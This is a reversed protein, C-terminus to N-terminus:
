NLNIHQPISESADEFTATRDRGAHKAAYLATDAARILEEYTTIDRSLTAAGISVTVGRGGPGRLAAHTREALELAGAIATEPVLMAFEDGGLRAALDNPRGARRLATALHLLAADGGAHGNEDNITKLHDVDLLLLSMPRGYRIARSVEAQIAADFGRRNLCATLMDHTAEAEL